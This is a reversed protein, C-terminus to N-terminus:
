YGLKEPILIVNIKRGMKPNEKKLILLKAILSGGWGLKKAREDELPFVYKEIRDLGAEINKVIKQTGVVIIINQSTYVLHPLQSGSNSAWIIEGNETIAHASVIFYDSLVSEKRLKNQKDADKESLINAHLNNWGHENSKLYDIFGIEHLTVSSGNMISAGPSIMKKIESLAETKNKVLRSSFNNNQLNTITKEIIKNDAIKDYNM